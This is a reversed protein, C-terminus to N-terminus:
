RFQQQKRSKPNDIRLANNTNIKSQERHAYITAWATFAEVSDTKEPTFDEPTNQGNMWRQLTKRDKPCNLKELIALAQKYPIHKIRKRKPIAPTKGDGSQTAQIAKAIEQAMLKRRNAEDAAQVIARNQAARIYYVQADPDTPLRGNPFISM